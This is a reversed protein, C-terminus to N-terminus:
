DSAAAERVRADPVPGALLSAMTSLASLLEARREVPLAGFRAAFAAGFLGPANIAMQQGKETLRTFVIRRDTSSRYREVIARQELNELVMVVTAASLDAHDALAQTTVEGLEAVATLIVLQPGTLGTSKALVRSQLDNARVIRRISKLLQRTEEPSVLAPSAAPAASLPTNTPNNM